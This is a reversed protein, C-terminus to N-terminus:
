NQLGEASEWSTGRRLPSIAVIFYTIERQWADITLWFSLELDGGM